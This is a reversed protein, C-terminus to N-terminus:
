RPQIIDKGTTLNVEEMAQRLNTEQQLQKIQADKYAGFFDLFELLSVQRQRYSELMNQLLQQYKGHLDPDSQQQLRYTTLLKQYSASVETEVQNQIQLVGTQAQKISFQAAAINGKNRNLIPIPISLALGYYNNIYSSRQDYEVGVNLDPVALAKQYSLNHQQFLLNTQALNADPRNLKASDIL